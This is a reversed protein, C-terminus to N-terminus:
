LRGDGDTYTAGSDDVFPDPEEFYTHQIRLGDDSLAWALPHGDHIYFRGGPTVLSATRRAWRDVDPLWSLAGVSVYVIDFVRADLATVADYVDSCVFTAHDALEARQALDRAGEIATRSFDLGTVQAGARAFQLTDLGFHCQLHLLSLGKIDGLAE